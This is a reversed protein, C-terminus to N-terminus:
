RAHDHHRAARSGPSAHTVLAPAGHDDLCTECELEITAHGIRFDAALMRKLETGVAQAQELSPHGTIVVHASLAHLESSLSWAHVDHVDDVGAVRCMAAALEVLDVGDPTAEMLVTTTEILLRVAQVALLLGIALSIAPDLWYTGHTAAMVVGAVVVGASAIADGVLHLAASRMNLDHADGLLVVTAIGNGLLAVAAVVVVTVGHVAPPDSLRRVAEIGLVVTVVIIAAANAQAALVSSRHYGYSKRDNPSRRVLRVALLSLGLAGVDTLNHGADAILGISHALFGFVVQAVVIVVNLAM